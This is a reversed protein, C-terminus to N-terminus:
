LPSAGERNLRRSLESVYRASDRSPHAEHAQRAWWLASPLLGIREAEVALNHYARGRGAFPSPYVRRRVVLPTPTVQEALDLAASGLLDQAVGRELRVFPGLTRDRLHTRAVGLLQGRLQGDATVTALAQARGELTAAEQEAPGHAFSVGCGYVTIRTHAGPRVVVDAERLHETLADAVPACGRNDSVVAVEPGVALTPSPRVHVRVRSGCAPLMSMLM